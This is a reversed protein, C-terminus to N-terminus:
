PWMGQQTLFFARVGAAHLAEREARNRRIASDKSLVVWGHQGIEILWNTDPTEQPFHDDHIEVHAGAERLAKAVFHSGLSRNVFFVVTSPTKRTM